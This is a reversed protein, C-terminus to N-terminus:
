EFPDIPPPAPLAVTFPDPPAPEPAPVDIPTYILVTTDTVLVDSLDEQYYMPDADLMARSELQEIGVRYPTKRM